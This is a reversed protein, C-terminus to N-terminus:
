PILGPQNGPKLLLTYASPVSSGSGRQLVWTQGFYPVVLQAPADSVREFSAYGSLDTVASDIVRNTAVEVLRVSIGGVGEAPDVKRNGNEDYAILVDARLIRAPFPTGTPQLTPPADVLVVRLASRSTPSPTMSVAPLILTDPPARFVDIADVGVVGSSARLELRHVGAGVSHTRSFSFILTDAYGDIEELVVGDVWLAFRGINEAAVYRVRLAEGEFTFFASAGAETRHYQGRSADPVQRATWAPHYSIAPHDSEFRYWGFLPPVSQTADPLPDFPEPPAPLVTLGAPLVTQTPPIVVGPMVAEVSLVRVALTPTPSPMATPTPSDTVTPPPPATPSPPLTHTPSPLVLLTPLPLADSPPPHAFAFAAVGILAFIAALSVLIRM